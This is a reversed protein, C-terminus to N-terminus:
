GSIVLAKLRIRDYDGCEDNFFLSILRDAHIDVDNLALIIYDESKDLWTCSIQGYDRYEVM